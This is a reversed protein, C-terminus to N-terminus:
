CKLKIEKFLKSCELYSTETLTLLAKAVQQIEWQAEPRIRQEIFHFLNHLDITGWYSTYMNQPLIMRAQERSVGAKILKQYLIMSDECHEKVLRDAKTYHRYDAQPDDDFDPNFSEVISGQKNKDDQRRFADPCYFQINESTFRRSQESFKWTRYRHHQRAVFLPVVFRFRLLVHEFPSTHEHEILYRLLKLDKDSLVSDEKMDKGFSVRAAAVPTMDTGLKQLLEVSGIKDNYLFIKNDTM